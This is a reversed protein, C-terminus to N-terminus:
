FTNGFISEQEGLRERREQRGMFQRSLSGMLVWHSCFWPLSVTPLFTIWVCIIYALDYLSENEYTETISHAVM